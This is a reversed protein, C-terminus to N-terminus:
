HKVVTYGAPVEFLLADQEGARLQTAREMVVGVVLRTPTMMAGLISRGLIERPKM